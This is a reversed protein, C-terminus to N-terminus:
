RISEPNASEIRKGLSVREEIEYGLSRYFAVAEDNGARVQLNVKPAGLVSLAEEAAQMMRRGYGKRRHCPDVGLYNVWGRHGEYGVMATGVVRGGAVAVLLLDPQWATKMLIDTAPDNAPRVLGCRHWLAVMTDHQPAEYPGIAIEM